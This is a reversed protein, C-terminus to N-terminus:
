LLEGRKIPSDKERNWYQAEEVDKHMAKKKAIVYFFAMLIATTIMLRKKM